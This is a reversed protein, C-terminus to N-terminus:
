RGYSTNSRRHNQQDQIGNSTWVQGVVQLMNMWTEANKTPEVPLTGDVVLYDIEGQLMSVDFDLYGEDVMNTLEGPSSAGDQM